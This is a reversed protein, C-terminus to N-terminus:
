NLVVKCYLWRKKVYYLIKYNKVNYWIYQCEINPCIVTTFIHKPTVNITRMM